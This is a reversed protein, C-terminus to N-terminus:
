KGGAINQIGGEFVLDPLNNQSGVGPYAYPCSPRCREVSLVFQTSLTGLVTTYQAAISGGGILAGDVDVLLSEVEIRGGLLALVTSNGVILERARLTVGADVILM